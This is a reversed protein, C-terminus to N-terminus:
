FTLAIYPFLLLSHDVALYISSVIDVVDYDAMVGVALGVNDLFSIGAQAQGRLGAGMYFTTNDGTGILYAIGAGGAAQLHFRDAFEGRFGVGLMYSMNLM